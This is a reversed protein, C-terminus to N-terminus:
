MSLRFRTGSGRSTRPGGNKPPNYTEDAQLSTEIVPLAEVRDIVMLRQASIDNTLSLKQTANSVEATLLQLGVLLVVTSTLRFYTSMIARATSSYNLSTDETYESNKSFNLEKVLSKCHM